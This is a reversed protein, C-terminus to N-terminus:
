QEKILLKDMTGGKELYEKFVLPMRGRGSWLHAKGGVTIRYKPAVKRTRKKAKKTVEAASKGIVLNKLEKPPLGMEDILQKLKSINAAQKKAAKRAERRKVKIAGERLNSIAKELEAAGLQSAVKNAFAKSAAVKKLEELIATM